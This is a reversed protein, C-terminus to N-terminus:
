KEDANALTKKKAISQLCLACINVIEYKIKETSQQSVETSTSSHIINLWSTHISFTM